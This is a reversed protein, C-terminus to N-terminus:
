EFYDTYRNLLESITAAANEGSHVDTASSLSQVAPIYVSLFVHLQEHAEGTMTCGKILEAIQNQLKQASQKLAPLDTHDAASFLASMKKFMTRTHDDMQWKQGNDLRLSLAGEENLSQSDRGNDSEQDHAAHDQDKEHSCSTLLILYFLVTSFQIPRLV